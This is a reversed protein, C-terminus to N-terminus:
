SEETVSEGGDALWAARSYVAVHNTITVEAGGVERSITQSEAALERLRLRERSEASLTTPSAEFSQETVGECGAVAATAATAGAILLQRRTTTSEIGRETARGDAGSEGTPEHADWM